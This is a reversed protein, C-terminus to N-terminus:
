LNMIKHPQVASMSMPTKTLNENEAKQSQAYEIREPIIHAVDAPSCINDLIKDPNESFVLMFGIAMEKEQSMTQLIKYVREIKAHFM